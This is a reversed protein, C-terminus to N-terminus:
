MFEILKEPLYVDTLFNQHALTEIEVKKKEQLMFELQEAWGDVKQVRGENLLKQCMRVDREKLPQTLHNKIHYTDIDKPHVGIWTIDNVVMSVNGFAKRTKTGHKYVSMINFGDPNCDVLALVPLRLKERLIRVFRRTSVGPQGKGTVMICEFLSPFKTQAIINFVAQTEVLLIFGASCSRITMNEVLNDDPVMVGLKSCDFFAGGVEFELKGFVLGNSPPYINLSARTCRFAACLDDIANSVTAENWFLNKNSYYVAHQTMSTKQNSLDIILELLYVYISYMRISDFNNKIKIFGSQKRVFFGLSEDFTAETLKPIDFSYQPTEFKYVDEDLKLLSKNVLQFLLRLLEHKSIRKVQFVTSPVDAIVLERKKEKMKKVFQQVVRANSSRRDSFGMIDNSVDAKDADSPVVSPEKHKQAVFALDEDLSQTSYGLDGLDKELEEFFDDANDADSPVVSPAQHRQAVFALDADLSQTSYGLDGLDKELFALDADLSQTSYGLDGLDKELEEFFDDAKDADDNSSLVGKENAPNEGDGM